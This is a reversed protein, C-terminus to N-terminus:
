GRSMVKNSERLGGEVDKAGSEIVRLQEDLQRLREIAGGKGSDQKMGATVVEFSFCFSLSLSMVPFRFIKILNLLTEIVRELWYMSLDHEM